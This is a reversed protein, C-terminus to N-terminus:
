VFYLGKFVNTSNDSASDQIHQLLFTFLLDLDNKHEEKLSPHHCKIMREIIVAQLNANYNKMLNEFEDYDKPIQFTFPLEKVAAKTEENETDKVNENLIEPMLSNKGNNENKQASINTASM